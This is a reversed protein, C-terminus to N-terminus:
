AWGLGLLEWESVIEPKTLKIDRHRLIQMLMPMPMSMLMM